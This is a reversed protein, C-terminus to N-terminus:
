SFPYQDDPALSLEQGSEFLIPSNVLDIHVSQYKGAEVNPAIRDLFQNLTKETGFPGFSYTTESRSYYMSVTYAM